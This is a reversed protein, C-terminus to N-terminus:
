VPIDLEFAPAPGDPLLGVVRGDGFRGEVYGVAAGYDTPTRTVSQVYLRGFVEVRARHDKMDFGSPLPQKRFVIEGAEVEPAEVERMALLRGLGRPPRTAPKAQWDRVGLNFSLIRQEREFHRLTLESLAAFRERASTIDLGRVLESILTASMEDMLPPLPAAMLAEALDIRGQQRLNHCQLAYLVVPVSDAFIARNTRRLMDKTRDTTEALDHTGLRDLADGLLGYLTSQREGGIVTCIGLIAVTPWPYAHRCARGLQVYGRVRQRISINYKRCWDHARRHFGESQERLETALPTPLGALYGALGSAPLLWADETMLQFSNAQEYALAERLARLNDPS